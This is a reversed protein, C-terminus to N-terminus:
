AERQRSYIQWTGMSPREYEKVFSMGIKRLANASGSNALRVQALLRPRSTTRFGYELQGFGIETAYGKGWAESQLVFGLELDEEGLAHFPKLGAYGIVAGGSREVLVGIKQGTGQHDFEEDFFAQAGRRDLPEGRLHQMVQTDSFLKSFLHQFDNPMAARLALRKTMIIPIQM